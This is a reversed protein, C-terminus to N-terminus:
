CWSDNEAPRGNQGGNASGSIAPMAAMAAEFEAPTIVKFKRAIREQEKRMKRSYLKAEQDEGEATMTVNKITSGSEEVVNETFFASTGDGM